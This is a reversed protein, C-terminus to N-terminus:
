GSRGTRFGWGGYERIPKYKRVYVKEIDEWELKRDKRIIPSFKYFIGESSIRTHLTLSFFLSLIILPVVLFLVLSLDSVPNDGYPKDLILQQTIAWLSIALPIGIIAIIWKQRFKQQEKFLAKAM